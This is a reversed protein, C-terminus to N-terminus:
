PGSFFPIKAFLNQYLSTIGVFSLETSPSTTHGDLTPVKGTLPLDRNYWQRVVFEATWEMNFPKDASETTTMSEFYGSIYDRRYMILVNGVSKIANTRASRGITSVPRSPAEQGSDPDGEFTYANNKFFHLLNILNQYSASYRRYLRTLGHEQTYYGGITGSFSIKDPQDGSHETIIGKGTWNEAIQKEFNRTMTHPSILLVLFPFSSPKGKKNGAKELGIVFPEYNFAANLPTLTAPQGTFKARPGAAVDTWTSPPSPKLRFQSM